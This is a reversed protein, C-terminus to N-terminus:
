SLININFLVNLDLIDVHKQYFLLGFGIDLKTHTGKKHPLMDCYEVNHSKSHKINVVPILQQSFFFSDTTIYFGQPRTSRVM